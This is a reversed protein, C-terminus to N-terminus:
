LNELYVEALQEAARHLVDFVKQDEEPSVQYTRPDPLFNPNAALAVMFDYIMEQRTKMTTEIALSQSSRAM